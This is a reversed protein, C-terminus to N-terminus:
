WRSPWNCAGTYLATHKNGGGFTFVSCDVEILGHCWRASSMPPLNDVLGSSSILYAVKWEVIHGNSGGGSCFFRGDELAVWSSGHDVCIATSLPTQSSWSPNFLRLFTRTIQVVDPISQFYLCIERIINHSLRRRKERMSKLYFLWVKARVSASHRVM